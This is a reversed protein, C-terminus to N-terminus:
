SEEKGPSVKQECCIRVVHSIARQVLVLSIWTDLRTSWIQIWGCRYEGRLLFALADMRFRMVCRSAKRVRQILEMLEMFLQGLILSLNSKAM